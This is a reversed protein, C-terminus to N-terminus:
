HVHMDALGPMLYKGRGDIRLAAAPVKVKQAPGIATILGGKVLVTQDAIVRESDMPVVNVNVFAIIQNQKLQAQKAKENSNQGDTTPSDGAFYMFAVPLAGIGFVLAFVAVIMLLHARLRLWKTNRPEALPIDM